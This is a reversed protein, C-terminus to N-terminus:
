KRTKQKRQKENKHKIKGEKTNSPCKKPNQRSENNTNKKKKLCM